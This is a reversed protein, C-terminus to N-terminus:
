YVNKLFLRFQLLISEPVSYTHQRFLLAKNLIRVQKFITSLKKKYKKTYILTGTPLKQIIM